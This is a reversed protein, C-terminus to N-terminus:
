RDGWLRGITSLVQQNHSFEVINGDPDTVFCVYGIHPALERPPMELAGRAEARAAIADVDAREPLEIGLHAFPRLTPLPTDPAQGFQRGVDAVLEVLVLVFPDVVQHDNSLWASRGNEDANRHAVVLPTLDTYFEISRDLDSVPLAVHTWRPATLRTTM